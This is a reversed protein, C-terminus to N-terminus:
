PAARAATVEAATIPGAHNGFSGRAHTLVAAVDADSWFSFAPM